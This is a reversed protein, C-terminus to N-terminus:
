GCRRMMVVSGGNAGVQEFGLREYLRRAPNAPDVSLSVASYRVDAYALLAILLESGIGRGRWGPLLAISVEPTCDDVFGYGPADAPFLRLWAAGISQRTAADVAVFGCDAPQGWESVYHAIEPEALLTRPLPEVGEPVYLAHYLMEWLFPEDADEISRIYVDRM